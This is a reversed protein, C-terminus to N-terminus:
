TDTTFLNAPAKTRPLLPLIEMWLDHHFDTDDYNM